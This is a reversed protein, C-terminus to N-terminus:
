PALDVSVYSDFGGRGLREAGWLTVKLCGCPHLYGLSGRVGLLIKNSADYDADATSKLFRAWPVGLSGGIASGSGEFWSVWPADWAAGVGAVAFRTLVPVVGIGEVARASVFVGNSAGLRANFVHLAALPGSSVFISEQRFSFPRLDGSGVFAVFSRGPADDSAFGGGRISVTLATRRGSVEGVTTRLGPALVGFAGNAAIPPAVSPAEWHTTGGDGAVFPTVWHEWPSERGGFRKVIPASIQGGAGVTGAFGSATDGLTIAVRSAAQVGV